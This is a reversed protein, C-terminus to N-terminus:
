FVTFYIGQFTVKATYDKSFNNINVWVFEKFRKDELRKVEIKKSWDIESPEELEIEYFDKVIKVSADKVEAMCGKETMIRKWKDYPHESLTKPQKRKSTTGHSFRVIPTQTDNSQNTESVNNYAKTVGPINKSSEQSLNENEQATLEVQRKGLREHPKDSLNNTTGIDRIVEGTPSHAFTFISKVFLIIESFIGKVFEVIKFLFEFSKSVSHPAAIKNDTAKSTRPLM